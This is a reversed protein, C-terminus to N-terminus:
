IELYFRSLDMTENDKIYLCSRQTQGTIHRNLKDSNLKKSFLNDNVPTEPLGEEITLIYGPLIWRTSVNPDYM